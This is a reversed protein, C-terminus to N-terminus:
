TSSSAGPPGAAERRPGEGTSELAAAEDDFAARRASLHKQLEAEARARRDQLEAGLSTLRTDRTGALEAGLAVRADAAAQIRRADDLAWKAAREDAARRAAEEATARRSALEEALGDREDRLRAADAEVTALIRLKEALFGHEANLERETLIASTELLLAERTDLKSSRRDAAHERADCAEIRRLIEADASDLETKRAALQEDATRSAQRLAEDQARKESVVRDEEAGPPQRANSPGRSIPGHTGSCPNSAACVSRSPRAPRSLLANM